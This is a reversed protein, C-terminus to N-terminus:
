PRLELERLNLHQMESWQGSCKLGDDVFGPQDRFASKVAELCVDCLSVKINTKSIM